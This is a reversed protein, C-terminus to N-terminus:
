GKLTIQLPKLQLDQIDSMVQMEYDMILQTLLLSQMLKVELLM